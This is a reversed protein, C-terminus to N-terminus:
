VTKELPNLTIRAQLKEVYDLTHFYMEFSSEETAFDLVAFFIHDDFVEVMTELPFMWKHPIGTNNTSPIVLNEGDLHISAHKGCPYGNCIIQVCSTEDRIAEWAKKLTTRM